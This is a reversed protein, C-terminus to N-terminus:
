QLLGYSILPGSAVVSRLGKSERSRTVRDWLYTRREFSGRISSIELFRWIDRRGTLGPTFCLNVYDSSLAGELPKKGGRPACLGREQQSGMTQWVSVLSNM